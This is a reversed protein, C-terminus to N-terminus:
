RKFIREDNERTESVIWDLYSQSGAVLSTAVIGPVEYPHIEKIVQELKHYLEQRTRITCVWEQVREIKGKWWYTSTIPGSVWCSPALRKEVVTDAIKLAGDRSDIATLVLIFDSM